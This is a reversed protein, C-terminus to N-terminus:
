IMSCLFIMVGASPLGSGPLFIASNFRNISYLDEGKIILSRCLNGKWNFLGYLIVFSFLLMFMYLVM